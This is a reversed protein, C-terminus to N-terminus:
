GVSSRFMIGCHPARGKDSSFATVLPNKLRCPRALRPVSQLLSTVFSVLRYLLGLLGLLVWQLERLLAPPVLTARASRLLLLLFPVSCCDTASRMEGRWGRHPLEVDLTARFQRWDRAWLEEEARQHFAETLRQEKTRWRSGGAPEPGADPNRRHIQGDRKEALQMEPWHCGKCKM